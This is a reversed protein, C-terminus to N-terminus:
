YTATPEDPVSPDVFLFRQRTIWQIEMYWAHFKLRPSATTFVRFVPPRASVHCSGFSSATELQRFDRVDDLYNVRDQLEQIQVSLWDM